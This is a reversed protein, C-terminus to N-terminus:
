PTPMSPDERRLTAMWREIRALHEPEHLNFVEINRVAALRVALGTGGVVDVVHGARLRSGKAWCLVFRVPDDLNPGLVQHVNRTMLRRVMPALRDWAPHLQSAMHEAETAQPLASADIADSRGGYGAEPVFIERAGDVRIAGEEFASDAGRAGGSRLGWGAMALQEAVDSMLTLMDEPTERSGIGAYWRPEM